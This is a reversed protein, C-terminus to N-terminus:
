GGRAGCRREARGGGRRSATSASQLVSTQKIAFSPHTAPLTGPRIAAM